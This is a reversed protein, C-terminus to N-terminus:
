HAHELAGNQSFTGLDSKIFLDSKELENSKDVEEASNEEQYVYRHSLEIIEGTEKVTYEYPECDERKIKGPMETGILAKCTTEDFTSSMSAKKATAYFQGTSKSKIMELGGQLELVFFKRGDEAVREVYNIIRVM